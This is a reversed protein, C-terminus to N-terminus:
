PKTGVHIAITGAMMTEWTVGTLGVQAMKRALVAPEAFGKVSRPLYRYPAWAGAMAGGVLPSLGFFYVAFLWRMPFRRPWTMELCVVRGGSRVVRAQEAFAQEIDPVNRMMFGSTVADFTSDAFALALGDSVVWPLIQDGAKRQAQILMAPTLDTGVIRSAPLLRRALLAIDGTGTAVDLLESDPQVGAVALARRRWRADQGLSLLRNIRDYHAAIRTFLERITRKQAGQRDTADAPL